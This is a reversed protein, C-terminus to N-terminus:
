YAYTGHISSALISVLLHWSVSCLYTKFIVKFSPNGAARRVDRDRKRSELYSSDESFNSELDATDMRKSLQVEKVEFQCSLSIGPLTLPNAHGRRASTVRINCIKWSIICKKKLNERHERNESTKRYRQKSFRFWRNKLARARQWRRAKLNM